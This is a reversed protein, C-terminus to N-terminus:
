GWNRMRPGKKRGAAHRERGVLDLPDRMERADGHARCFGFFEAHLQVAHERQDVLQLLGIGSANRRHRMRELRHQGASLAQPRIGYCLGVPRSSNRAIAGATSAPRYRTGFTM